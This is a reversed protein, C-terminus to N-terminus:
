SARSSAMDLADRLIDIAAPGDLVRVARVIESAAPTTPEYLHDSEHDRQLADARAKAKDEVRQVTAILDRLIHPSGYATTSIPRGYKAKLAM